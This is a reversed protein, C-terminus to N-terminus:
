EWEQLFRQGYQDAVLLAAYVQDLTAGGPMNHITEGEACAAEAVIRMKAPVDEKIDLQALTIPLGVAHSLAAVTEIEEVPANELVLQTLTGFAVKEGHYYHHADPIATLGNHVAHAAALGGSEFGVGSLYTNAEIVRELAPTVVHQEAALMAKEGEELLTNYCLEALALAAQTCKGGAMTTAGSRSCARAEFWTALADGIGAALLRAPAGAVIKTDVIVMNPNNPLLLYRDFEGEDTYIVSLASCPADTSAITPAIAVPVGMFHALAKATDLTKGGGIGLIAGCQATEAIGRLRDIENQSCEGGFPAIEVVLGADKFSKEVTSQAFGLVFKDGVVLWREALPKLYEGLRNIVDAGQIYKGPSQIIRDM